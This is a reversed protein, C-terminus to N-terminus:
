HVQVRNVVSFFEESIPSDRTSGHLAALESQTLQFSKIFATAVEHQM